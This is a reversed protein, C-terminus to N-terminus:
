HKLKMNAHWHLHKINGLTEADISKAFDSNCMHSCVQAL